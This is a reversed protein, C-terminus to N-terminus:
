RKTSRRVAERIPRMCAAALQRRRDIVGALHQDFAVEDAHQLTKM